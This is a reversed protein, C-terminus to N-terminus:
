KTEVLQLASRRYGHVGNDAWCVVVVLGYRDNYARVVVGVGKSTRLSRVLDGRKM